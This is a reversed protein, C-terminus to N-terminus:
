PMDVAILLAKNFFNGSIAIAKVSIMPFVVGLLIIIDKYELSSFLLRGILYVTISNLSQRFNYM